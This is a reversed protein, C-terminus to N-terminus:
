PRDKSINVPRELFRMTENTHWPARANSKLLCEKVDKISPDRLLRNEQISLVIALKKSSQLEELRVLSKVVFDVGVDQHGVVKMEEELCLSHRYSLNHRRKQRTVRHIKVPLVLPHPWKELIPKLTFETVPITIKKAGRAIDM